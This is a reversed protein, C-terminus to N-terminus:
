EKYFFQTKKILKSQPIIIKYFDEIPMGINDGNHDKYKTHYNGYPDDILFRDVVGNLVGCGVICVFHGSRTFAGSTTCVNGDMLHNYIEEVTAYKIECVDRKVLYKNCVEVLIESYNWPNSKRRGLIKKAENGMMLSMFYDEPQMNEPYDFQINCCNLANIFSTVNCASYPRLKNNRQTHITKNISNNIIM